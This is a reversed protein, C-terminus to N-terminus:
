VQSAAVLNLPSRSRKQAKLSHKQAESRWDGQHALRTPWGAEGTSDVEQTYGPQYIGMLLGRTRSLNLSPEADPDAFDHGPPHQQHIESPSQFMFLSMFYSSATPSTSWNTNFCDVRTGSLQAPTSPPFNSRGPISCCYM